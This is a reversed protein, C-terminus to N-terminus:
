QKKMWRHIAEKELCPIIFTSSGCLLLQAITPYKEIDKGYITRDPDTAAKYIELIEALEQDTINKILDAVHRTADRIM